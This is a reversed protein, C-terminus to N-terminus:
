KDLDGGPRNQSVNISQSSQMILKSRQLAAEISTKYRAMQAEFTAKNQALEADNIAKEQSLNFQKQAKERELQLKQVSEMASMQLSQMKLQYDNQIKQADNQGKMQAALVDPNIDEGESGLEQAEAPNLFYDDTQGLGMSQIIGDATKYLKENDVLGVELGDAQLQAVTMLHGIKQDKKGTGLGVRINVNVDDPWTSPDVERYQGKMKISIKEGEDKMLKLKKSFLRSLCEAFNRAIFEEYQEASAQMGNFETATEGNLSDASLGRNLRTVGSSSEQEGNWYQMVTLSKSVDFNTQYPQPAEGNYRIPAGPVPTLLDSITSEHVSNMNVMPRPMNSSYMGDMMQRATTTKIAHIAMVKDALSNGVLRHSRPFPTFVVIPQQDITEISPQGTESDILIQDAVRFVKVREAIGDDDIDMRAYEEKLLVQQLAPSSDEQEWDNDYKDNNREHIDEGDYMPLDYVQDRDFGMEVLESRTKMVVHCLYDADDENRARQSFRFERRPIPIDIYRKVDKTTKIRVTFTGDENDTYDELEGEMGELMGVDLAALQDADVTFTERSVKEETVCAPKVAGYKVLLGDSLWDRLVRYGDQDRMFSQNIADTAEEAGEEDEETKAEFEVTKDGSVFPRLVSITMYDVTENVVNLIVQSRGEVETGIPEGDYYDVAADQEDCIETDLEAAEYELQLITAIEEPTMKM